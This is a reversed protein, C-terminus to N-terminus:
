LEAYGDALFVFMDRDSAFLTTNQRDVTARLWVLDM